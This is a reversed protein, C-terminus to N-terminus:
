SNKPLVPCVDTPTPQCPCDSHFGQEAGMGLWLIKSVLAGINIEKLPVFDALILNLDRTVHLNYM